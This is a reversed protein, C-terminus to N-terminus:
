MEAPNQLQVTIAECAFNIEGPYLELSPYGTYHRQFAGAESGNEPKNGKRGPKKGPM